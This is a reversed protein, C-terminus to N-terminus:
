PSLVVLLGPGDGRDPARIFPFIPEDTSALSTTAILVLIQLQQPHTGREISVKDCEDLRDNQRLLAAWPTSHTQGSM